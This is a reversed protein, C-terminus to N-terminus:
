FDAQDFLFFHRLVTRSIVLKEKLKLIGELIIARLIIPLKSNKKAKILVKSIFKQIKNM